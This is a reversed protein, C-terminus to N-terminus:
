NIFDLDACDDDREEDRARDAPTALERRDLVRRTERARAGFAVPEFDRPFFDRVLCSLPLASIVM